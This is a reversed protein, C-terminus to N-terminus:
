RKAEALRGALQSRSRVGLKAYARSLHVEVTHVTVFLTQAIQKNALGEAALAVVREETPTLEGTPRPRRAGVRSLEARAREAWGSAAMADFAEAASELTSRAVGWQKFRRQTRGLVLRSRAADFRLGLAEYDAAAGELEAAAEEDYARAALRVVAGGRRATLRAWPHDQREALESVRDTIAQAEALEGLDALAEVLDPAVPFVGPDEVGARQTQEWVPRLCEVARAADPALLAAIGRARNCELEDWMVGVQRAGAIAQEAWRETEEPLGRGAALLARCRDLMPPVLLDQDTSTSWEDILRAAAEWDGARIELECLHLRQLAYSVPEGRGDALALLRTLTERAAELEGRWVLRQGAVREPSEALYPAEDSAARHRACLDDLSRGTMGHVWALAVLALRQEYPGADRAIVTAAVAWAEAQTLRDITCASVDISRRALIRARLSPDNESEDWANSLHQEFAETTRVDAAESLLMWARARVRGAPLWDLAPRMVDALRQLEGALELCSGLALLRESREPSGEPTLRLAHEALRVAQERGGRASAAASASAVTAALEEDPRDTALALHLARLGPGGVVDALARHLGRRDRALSRKRAAAALLPHSARVRDGDVILVGADVADDLAGPEAVAALEGTHLGGSLAVALLLRRVPTALKGVRTGLMDELADPVPIDEGAEPAGTEILNRGLELAFLPNGVASEVIRRLTQRSVSLDLRDALIRRTAGLSLPGIDLQELARGEFAKELDSARGPRKALLFGIPEQELRRAAFALADASAADLWQVDDIAIVLPEAAALARLANLLGLAIARPEPPAGTPDTRLLAVELATRQPVLIGELAGADIGDCLDILATFSLQAEAGSPRASLVRLGREAAAQAAASWLTTKGIGPKGKLVLARPGTGAVFESLALLEFDRGVIQTDQV